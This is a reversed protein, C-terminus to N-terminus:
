ETKPTNMFFQIAIVIASVIGVTIKTPNPLESSAFAIILAILVYIYVLSQMRKLFETGFRGPDDRLQKVYVLYILYFFQWIVPFVTVVWGGLCMLVFSWFLIFASKLFKWNSYYTLPLYATLGGLWGPIWMGFVLGFFSIFLIVSLIDFLIRLISTFIRAAMTSSPKDSEDIKDTFGKLGDFVKHLILGGLQYSSQQTRELWWRLGVKENIETDNSM